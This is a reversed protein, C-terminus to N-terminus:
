WSPSRSCRARRSPRSRGLRRAVGVVAPMAWARVVDMLVAGKARHALIPASPPRCSSPSRPASASSCACRRRCASCASCRTSCRCSSARRRRHRVPRGSHRHRRRRGRDAAVLWALEGLPVGFIMLQEAVARAQRFMSLRPPKRRNPSRQGRGAGAGDRSRRRRRGAQGGRDRSAPPLRARRARRPVPRAHPPHDRICGRAARSSASSIPSSRRRRRRRRARVAGADGFLLPDVALLRWPEQYAARGMMVGDVHDLHARRRRSARSAATSCSRCRRIRPRSGISATTTSRRCTATRARRCARSGPRARM